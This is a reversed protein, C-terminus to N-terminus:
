IDGNRIIMGRPRINVKKGYIDDWNHYNDLFFRGGKVLKLYINHFITKYYKRPTHSISNGTCLISDFLGRPYDRINLWNGYKFKIEYRKDSNITKALSIMEKSIDM